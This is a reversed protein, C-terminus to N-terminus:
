PRSISPSRTAGCGSTILAMANSSLGHQPPARVVCGGGCDRRLEDGAAARARLRRLGGGGGRGDDRCRPAFCVCSHALHLRSNQFAAALLLRWCAALVLLCWCRCCRCCRCCWRCCCCCACEGVYAGDHVTGRLGVMSYGPCEKAWHDPRLVPAAEDAQSEDPRMHFACRGGGGGGAARQEFTFLVPEFTSHMSLVLPVPGGGGCEYVGAWTQGASLAVPFHPEM